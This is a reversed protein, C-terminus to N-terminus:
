PAGRDYAARGRVGLRGECLEKGRVRGEAAVKRTLNSRMGRAKRASAGLLVGREKAAGLAALIRASIAAAEGEAVPAMIHLVMRSADPMDCARFELGADLVTAIFKVSRSARDLEGVLLVAGVRKAHAV